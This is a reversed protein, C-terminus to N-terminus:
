GEGGRWGGLVSEILKLLRAATSVGKEAEERTYGPLHYRGQIYADELLVLMDREEVLFRQLLDAEELRGAERLVSALYGLLRRLSHGRPISGLLRAYVTRSGWSPQRSPWPWHWTM